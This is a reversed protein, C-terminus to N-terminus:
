SQIGQYPYYEQSCHPCIDPPWVGTKYAHITKQLCKDFDMMALISSSPVNKVKYTVGVPKGSEHKTISIGFSVIADDEIKYNGITINMM